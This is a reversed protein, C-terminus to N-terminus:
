AIGAEEESSSTLTRACSLQYWFAIRVILDQHSTIRPDLIERARDAAGLRVLAEGGLSAALGVWGCSAATGPASVEVCAVSM